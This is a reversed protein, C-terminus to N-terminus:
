FPCSDVSEGIWEAWTTVIGVALLAATETRLLRSGLNVGIFGAEVAMAEESAELGGEPGVLITTQSLRNEYLVHLLPRASLSPSLVMKAGVQSCSELFHKLNVPAEVVPIRTHGSQAIASLVVFTWRQKLERPRRNSRSTILPVFRSVGLETGHRLIQEMPGPRICSFALVIEPLSRATGPIIQEVKGTLAGRDSACLRVIYEDCNLLVSIRHGSRKRLVNRLYHSNEPSFKVLDEELEERSIPIRSDRM